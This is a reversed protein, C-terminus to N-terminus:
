ATPSSQWTSGPIAMLSALFYRFCIYYQLNSFHRERIIVMLFTQKIPAAGQVQGAIFTEEAALYEGIPATTTLTSFGPPSGERRTPFKQSSM